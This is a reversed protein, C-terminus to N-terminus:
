CSKGIKCMLKWYMFIVFVEMPTFPMKALATLNDKM